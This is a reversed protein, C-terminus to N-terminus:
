LNRKKKMPVKNVNIKFFYRASYTFPSSYSNPVINTVDTPM